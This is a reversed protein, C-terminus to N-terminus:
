LAEVGPFRKVGGSPILVCGPGGIDDHGVYRSRVALLTVGQVLWQFEGKAVGGVRQNYVVVLGDFEEYRPHHGWETASSIGPSHLLRTDVMAPSYCGSRWRGCTIRSPRPWRRRGSNISSRLSKS